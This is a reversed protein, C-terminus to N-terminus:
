KAEDAEISEVKTLNTNSEQDSDIVLTSEYNSSGENESAGNIMVTATTIGVAGALAVVAAKWTLLKAGLSTGGKVAASTSAGSSAGSSTSSGSISGTDPVYTNGIDNAIKGWLDDSPKMEFDGLGDEFLKDINKESM